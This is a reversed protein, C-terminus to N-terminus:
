SIQQWKDKGREGMRRLPHTLRDPHYLYELSALGKACLRSRNVPSGPDGDVKTVGGNKIHVLVGCGNQCLSCTSKVVGNV